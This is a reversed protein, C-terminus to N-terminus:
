VVTNLINLLKVPLHMTNYLTMVRVDALMFVSKPFLLSLYRVDIEAVCYNYEFTIIINLLRLIKTYIDFMKFQHLAFIIYEISIYNHTFCSKPPFETVLDFHIHLGSMNFLM